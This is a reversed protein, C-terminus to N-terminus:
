ANRGSWRKNPARSPAAIPDRAIGMFYAMAVGWWYGLGFAVPTGFIAALAACGITWGVRDESPVSLTEPGFYGVLACLSIATLVGCGRVGHNYVLRSWPTTGFRWLERVTRLGWVLLALTIALLVSCGFVAMVLHM